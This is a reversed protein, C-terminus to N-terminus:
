YSVNKLQLKNKYKKFNYGIQLRMQEITRHLGDINLQYLVAAIIAQIEHM